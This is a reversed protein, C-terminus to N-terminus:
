KHRLVIQRDEVVILDTFEKFAEVAKQPGGAIKAIEAMWKGETPSNKWALEAPGDPMPIYVILDWPGSKCEFAIVERGIAKDAPVFYQNIIKQAEEARNSKFKMYVAAYWNVNEYKTPKPPEQGIAHPTSTAAIAGLAILAILTRLTKM